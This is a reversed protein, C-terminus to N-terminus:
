PFYLKKEQLWVELFGSSPSFWKKSPEEWMSPELSNSCATCCSTARSFVTALQPGVDGVWCPNAGPSDLGPFSRELEWWTSFTFIKLQWLNKTGRWSTWRTAASMWIVYKSLLVKSSYVKKKRKLRGHLSQCSLVFHNSHYIQYLVPSLSCVAAEWMCKSWGM